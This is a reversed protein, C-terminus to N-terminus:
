FSVIPRQWICRLLVARTCNSCAAIAPLRLAYSSELCTPTSSNSACVRSLVFFCSGVRLLVLLVVVPADGPDCCSAFCLQMDGSQRSKRVRGWCGQVGCVALPRCSYNGSWETSDVPCESRSGVWHFLSLVHPAVAFARCTFAATCMRPMASQLDHEVRQTQPATCVGPSRMMQWM